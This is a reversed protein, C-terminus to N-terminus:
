DAMNQLQEIYLFLRIGRASAFERLRVCERSTPPLTLVLKDFSYRRHILELDDLSGIVPLGYCNTHRYLRDRSVIGILQERTAREIDSTVSNRYLRTMPTIGFLLTRSCTAGGDGTLASRIHRRIAAGRLYHVLHRELSIITVAISAAYLHRTVTLFPDTLLQGLLGAILFSLLISAILRCHDDSVAFNWLVRYSHTLLLVLMVVAVHRLLQGFDPSCESALYYALAVSALDFIPNIAHSLLLGARATQFNHYLAETSNWLEIVALRNIALSFTGIVLVLALSLNNGPLMCCVIGVAGMLIALAYISLVTKRQNNDFYRLLRHHLHRQDAQGLRALIRVFRCAPSPQADTPFASDSDHPVPTGVLRRWVALLIDLVPIGCALLPIGISAVSVLRANLALGATALIYGIFMSGTDGMFLRAPHWNFVLFGLLAGCFALLTLALQTQGKSFAVIVMCSASILGVGCALGDVGDIMNFANILAVTWFLSCFCGLWGPLQWGFVNTMRFGLHWALLAAATQLLFKSGPRLTLRDDAIGLPALILLPTLLRLTEPLTDPCLWGAATVVAAFAILMGLGGGRPIPKRHIHRQFDPRDILGWIPLLTLLTRTLLCSLLFAIALLGLSLALLRPTDAPM